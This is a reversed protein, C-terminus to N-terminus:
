VRPSVKNATPGDMSGVITGLENRALNILSTKGSGWPGMVAIVYGNTADVSRIEEAVVRAVSGRGLLDDASQEIPNDGATSM